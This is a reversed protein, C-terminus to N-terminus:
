DATVDRIELTITRNSLHLEMLQCIIAALIMLIGTTFLPLTINELPKRWLTASIVMAVTIFCGVSAYLVREAWAILFIRSEFIKMQAVISSRREPTCHGSRFEQSLQRMKDAISIYRANVGSVLIATASVLVVPTVAAALVQLPDSGSPMGGDYRPTVKRYNAALANKERPNPLVSTTTFLRLNIPAAAAAPRAVGISARDAFSLIWIAKIPQPPM